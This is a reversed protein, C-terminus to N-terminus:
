ALKVAIIRSGAVVGFAQALSLSKSYPSPMLPNDKSPYTLIWTKGYDKTDFNLAERISMLLSDLTHAEPSDSLMLFGKDLANMDVILKLHVPNFTGGITSEDAQSLGSQRNGTSKTLGRVTQLIEEMLSRDSRVSQSSASLSPVSNLIRELQPWLSEFSRKLQDESLHTNACTRLLSQMMRLIGERDAQVAQFQSLPGTVEVPRLDILLPIVRAKDVAKALAGAEFTQWLSNLSEKTVCIIGVNSESLQKSIEDNWVMGADIDTASFWPEIENIVLPLWEKLELAVHRSRPGSWSIFVKM